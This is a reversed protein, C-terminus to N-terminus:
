WGEATECIKKVLGIYFKITNFNSKIYVKSFDIDDYCWRFFILSLFSLLSYM